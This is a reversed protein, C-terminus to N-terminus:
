EDKQGEKAIKDVAQRFKEKASEDLEKRLLRYFNNDSQGLEQAVQWMRVRHKLAYNRLDMNALKM